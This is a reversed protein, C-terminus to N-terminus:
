VPLAFQLFFKRKESVAVPYHYGVHGIRQLCLFSDGGEISRLGVFFDQALHLIHDLISGVYIGVSILVGFQCKQDLIYAGSYITELCFCAPNKRRRLDRSDIM